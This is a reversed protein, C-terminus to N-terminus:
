SPETAAEWVLIAAANASEADEMHDHLVGEFRLGMKLLPTMTRDTFRGQAIGLAYADISLGPQQAVACAYDPMRCTTGYRALRNKKVWDYRAKYFAKGIGLRRFEPHVTIDLGYLTTGDAEFTDLFPGGVTTEWNAHVLWRLESLRTNSCSGVIQGEREAVFQAEPFIELHRHLHEARWLLDAPFPPPFALQQLAVAAEVDSLAMPRICFGNV